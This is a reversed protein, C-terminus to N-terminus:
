YGWGLTARARTPEARARGEWARRMTITTALCRSALQRMSHRLNRCSGSCGGTSVGRGTPVIVLAVHASVKVGGRGREVQGGGGLVLARAGVEGLHQAAVELGIVLGVGGNHARNHARTTAIRGVLARGTFGGGSYM